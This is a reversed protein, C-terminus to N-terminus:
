RPAPASSSRARAQQRRAAQLEDDAAVPSRSSRSSSCSTTVKVPEASVAASAARAGRVQERARDREVGLGVREVGRDETGVDVGSSSSNSRKTLSTARSIVTLAPWFHVAIRRAITGRLCRSATAARRRSRSAFILTPSGATSPTRMPASATSPAAAGVDALASPAARRLAVLDHEAGRSPKAGSPRPRRRRRRRRASGAARGRRGVFSAPRVVDLREARHAGHHGVVVEVLRDREGRAAAAAEDRRQDRVVRCTAACAIGACPPRARGDARARGRRRPRISRGRSAAAAHELVAARAAGAAALLQAAHAGDLVVQLAGGHLARRRHEGRHGALVHAARRQVFAVHMREALVELLECIPSESSVCRRVTSRPRCRRRRRCRPRSRRCASRRSRPSPTATRCACRARSSRATPPRRAQEDRRRRPRHEGVVPEVRQAEDLRDADAVRDARPEGALALDVAALLVRLARGPRRRTPRRPSSGPRRARRSSRCGSAPRSARLRRGSATPAGSPYVGDPPRAAVGLITANVRRLLCPGSDDRRWAAAQVRRCSGARADELLIRVAAQVVGLDRAVDRQASTFAITSSPRAGELHAVGLGALVQRSADQQLDDELFLGAAHRHERRRHQRLDDAEVAVRHLPHHARVELLVQLGEGVHLGPEGLLRLAQVVRLQLAGLQPRLEQAALRRHHLVQHAVVELLRAVHEHLHLLLQVLLGLGDERAIPRPAGVLRHAARTRQARRRM